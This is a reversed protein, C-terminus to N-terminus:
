KYALRNSTVINVGNLYEQLNIGAVAILKEIQQNTISLYSDPNTLTAALNILVENMQETGRQFYAQQFGVEAPHPKDYFTEVKLDLMSRLETKPIPKLLEDMVKLRRQTESFTIQPANELPTGVTNFVPNTVVRILELQPYKSQIEKVMDTFAALHADTEGPFGTLHYLVLRNIGVYVGNEIAKFLSRDTLWRKNQKRLDVGDFEGAAIEPAFTMTRQGLVALEQAVEPTFQYPATSGINIGAESNAEKICKRTIRLFSLFEKADLEPYSIRVNGIDPNERLVNSLLADFDTYDMTQSKTHSDVCFSCGNGCGRKVEIQVTPKSNRDASFEVVTLHGDIVHSFDYDSNTHFIPKEGDKTLSPVYYGAEQLVKLREEKSARKYGELEQIAAFTEPCADGIWAADYIQQMFFPNRMAMGGFIMLPQWEDRDAARLPIKAMDMAQLVHVASPYPSRMSVMVVSAENSLNPVVQAEVGLKNLHKTLYESALSNSLRGADFIQVEKKM